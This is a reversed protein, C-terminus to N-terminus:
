LVTYPLGAEWTATAARSRSAAALAIRCAELFGHGSRQDPELHCGEAWENWANIFVIQEEGQFREATKRVATTLMHRFLDPSSNLFVTSRNGARATNDWSPAAGLFRKYDPLSRHALLRVLKRYDYLRGEFHQSRDRDSLVTAPAEPQMGVCNPPFECGADFHMPSPDAATFSEVRCLYLEIGHKAATERWVLATRAIDPFLETRYVLLLPRGHIRIYRDDLLVPILELIFQRDSEHCHEQPMLIGSHNGDWNRTWPENAWCVCFPFAPKKLRLVENLPTELLRVGNFWYYYYCFGAIGNAAALEAQQERVCDLRLDYFGLDAPLHPQYHGEFLPRARTVNTWETFGKGWWLDNEPIPHFQPLYFAILRVNRSSYDDYV